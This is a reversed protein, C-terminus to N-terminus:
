LSEGLFFYWVHKEGITISVAAGVGLLLTMVIKLTEKLTQQM